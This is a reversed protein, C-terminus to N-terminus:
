QPQSPFAQQVEHSVHGSFGFGTNVSPRARQQFIQFLWCGCFYCEKWSILKITFFRDVVSSSLDCLCILHCSYPKDTITILLHRHITKGITRQRSRKWAPNEETDTSTSRHCPITTIRSVVKFINGTYGYRNHLLSPLSTVAYCSFLRNPSKRRLYVKNPARSYACRAKM